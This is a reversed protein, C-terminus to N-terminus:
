MTGIKMSGICQSYYDISEKPFFSLTDAIKERSILYKYRAPQHAPFDFNPSDTGILNVCRGSM